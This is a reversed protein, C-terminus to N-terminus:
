NMWNKDQPPGWKSTIKKRLTFFEVGGDGTIDLDGFKSAGMGGFSFPERPVPIGINIGMM